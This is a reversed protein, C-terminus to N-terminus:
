EKVIKKVCLGDETVINLMYTGSALDSVNITQPNNSVFKVLQGQLNYIEVRDIAMETNINIVNTVPNPYVMMEVLNDNEDHIGLATETVTANYIKRNNVNSAYNSVFAIVRCNGANYTSPLTYDVTRSYTTGAPVVSSGAASSIVEGWTNGILSKRMVNKHYMNGAGSQYYYLDDELLYISLRPSDFPMDSLFEGSVTVSLNRTSPNYTYNDINVTVFTPLAAAENFKNAIFSVADPFFVPGPDDTMKTRDLMIAPAYTAGGDNFFVLLDNDENCTMDDTYYGSHHALWIVDDRGNLANQIRTTASPCNGCSCTTFQEMLVKRPTAHSADYVTVSTSADDIYTDGQGNPNKVVLEVTYDGEQTQNFPTTMSFTYSDNYALNPVNFSEVSTTETGNVVFYADFSQMPLSGKNVVTGQVTANTGKAVYSPMQVSALQIGYDEPVLVEVNDVVVYYGDGYNQFAFYVTQGQYASLDIMYENCGVPVSSYNHLVTTFSAKQNDTTSLYVKIQEPYSDDQGCLIFKLFLGEQNLNIAPTVLWRDCATATTTYSISLMANDGAGFYDSQLFWSKNTVGYGSYNTLNDAYVTWGSPLSTSSNFDEHFITQANMAFSFAVLSLILLLKKM